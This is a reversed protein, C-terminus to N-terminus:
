LFALFSVISFLLTRARSCGVDFIYRVVLIRYFTVVARSKIESVGYSVKKTLNEKSVFVNLLCLGRTTVDYDNWDSGVLGSVDITTGERVKTAYAAVTTVRGSNVTSTAANAIVGAATVVAETTTGYLMDTTYSVTVRDLGTVAPQSTEPRETIPRSTM